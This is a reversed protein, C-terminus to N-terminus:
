IFRDGFQNISIMVDCDSIRPHERVLIYATSNIVDNLAVIATERILIM